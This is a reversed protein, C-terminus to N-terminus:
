EVIESPGPGMADMMGDLAGGDGAREMKRFRQNQDDLLM